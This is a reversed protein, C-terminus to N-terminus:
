IKESLNAHYLEKTDRVAVFSYAPHILLLSILKIILCLEHFFATQLDSVFFLCVFLFCTFRSINVIIAHQKCVAIIILNANIDDGRFPYTNSYFHTRPLFRLGLVLESEKTPNEFIVGVRSELYM